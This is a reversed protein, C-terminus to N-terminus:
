EMSVLTSPLIPEGLGPAVEAHFAYLEDTYRPAGWSASVGGDVVLVHGNVYSSAGSALFILAGVLEDPDGFRGMPQLALENRGFAHPALFPDAMESPFWGPAIANVRVGRNAWMGALNKTLSVVAAKSAAYGVPIGPHGGLAGISAINVISGGRGDALMRAGAARCGYWTGLVNVRLVQEVAAHPLREPMPGADATIGANNVLVDVRGFETWAREVLEEVQEPDVVDCVVPLATGGSEEVETALKRLRDGRRAALVVRAGAHALARAFTAGLGSSAGTVVATRGRVSFREESSTSM